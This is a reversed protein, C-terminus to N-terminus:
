PEHKAANTQHLEIAPPLPNTIAQAKDFEAMEKKWEAAQDPRGTTEYLEVARKCAEGLKRGRNGPIQNQREKMGQYGQVLLPEAASFNKQGALAAGLLSQTRFRSWDNTLNRDAIALVERLLVEADACKEMRILTLGLEASTAAVDPHETGLKAKRLRLTEALLQQADALRGTERYVVGLNHMELLTLWDDPGNVTKSRAVSEAFLATADNLRDLSEYVCALTDMTNLTVNDDLGIVVKLRRVAEDALPLAEAPRGALYYHWAVANMARLTRRDDPGFKSKLELLHTEVLAAAEAEKGQLMLLGALRSLSYAAFPHESGQLKWRLALVERSTAEAEALRGQAQLDDSLGGLSSTVDPHENGFLKRRMALAERHLAEAEALKNQLYLTTALNDLSTAVDAHEDGLLKRRMALAERHLTESEALKGQAGLVRALYDLSSAVDAHENGFLKRRMALAERHLAEAEALKNQRRLTTGLNYLSAAVEQHEHGLLKRQLALAERHLAEAKRWQGLAHYVAGLTNQLEAEVLPQNKLDKGVREATKDLIERLMTTDRGLAMSPGVGQLMDTLFQAVQRSKEAEALAHHEARTARVAQWTSVVVGAALLLVLATATALGAKHRRIFKQTRYVTSPAAASVPEQSLHRQIDDAVGNTTEYRRTRDKELCKMVIWDLDGRVLRSLAAPETHRQKAVDSLKDGLTRLRTSPKPPETERIMRRIEDLAAKALAEMAFPTVGTLLEYLLVGLSYVDSRTDVDLGSIEAQEPSMYAPTGIMQQFATFLTKETLKQGLAKAVGFDIVKPVAEADHLTVLVNSPKIDRHIIGKQHAHQVAHCVKMFLQLREATSLRAQDCYDTIPIGHVLEMVFYPRRAATAGADLVKAINPHDMLALAQREAEFRAIVERTDMGAKIIKLAVKREVPEVQEAMYVVGFGGEGIKQLLKYRGIMVGGAEIVMDAEPVVKVTGLVKGELESKPDRIESKTTEGGVEREGVKSKPSQVKSETGEIGFVVQGLCKPCLGELAGRPLEAGCQPCKPVETM